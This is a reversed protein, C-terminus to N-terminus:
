FVDTDSSAIVVLPGEWKPHMKSKRNLPHCMVLDGVLIPAMPSSTEERSSVLCELTAQYKKTADSRYKSLNQIHRKRHEAAEAIEIHTIPTTAVPTSPLVLEVGYHLFFLTAGLCANKYAHFAFLAQRLYLDWDRRKNGEEASIYQLRQILEHNPREVKRNM